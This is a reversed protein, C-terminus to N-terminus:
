VEMASRYEALTRDWGFHEQVFQIPSHMKPRLFAEWLKSALERPAEPTVLAGSHPCVASAMDGVASAIVPVDCAQAELVALPLGENRSPQCFVDFAAYLNAVDDRHGIFRVRDSVSIARAMSELSARQSGDGIIVLTVDQPLFLLSEILVDHGKVVELRGVAGIVKSAAGLDLQRRAALRDLSFSAVNVGNAITKVKHGPFVGVLTPELKDSVAIIQPRVFQAVARMVRRRRPSEYHWVDHEVHIIRKVGALRAAPGAYLFPGAHHTVITTASRARFLRALRGILTPEVGPQKDMGFITVGSKGIRPWDHHLTPMAGELSM